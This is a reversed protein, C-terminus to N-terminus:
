CSKLGPVRHATWLIIAYNLIFTRQASDKQTYCDWSAFIQQNLSNIYVAEVLLVLLNSNWSQQFLNSNWDLSQTGAFEKKNRNYNSFQIYVYLVYICYAFVYM